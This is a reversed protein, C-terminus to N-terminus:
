MKLTESLERLSYLDSIEDRREPQLEKPATITLAESCRRITLANQLKDQPLVVSVSLSAQLVRERRCDGLKNM